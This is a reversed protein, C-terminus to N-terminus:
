NLIIRFVVAFNNPLQSSPAIVLAQNTQRWDINEKSGLLQIHRISTNLWGASKGLSKISVGNTPSGLVIAYLTRGDKSQTFRVDEATFPRGKGENFGQASLAAGASAPGEGFVKWPRTGFICEKNVEMWDGIGEVVKLEKEDITGDGRVPINLLLNGNKSVVNVLTQIVTKTSKYGNRNYLGRDYHWGGICTDTQWPFPQIENASGREIDWVMCQQQELTLIKGFLVGDDGHVKENTKYFDAAIKLGADSVPWLPLATDDFYILDPQYKKILDATRNYFKDCYAQDPISIGNGWNWRAHISGPDRYNPSPAHNQAYLDQPNLGDWWQGAGDAKTLKGDYDQAPEYWSWAHAAHVSVGFKLGNERAAKAWGGIMDKKPGIAVSNWPQYTSDWLDFNDHHNALAFFYQAGARKYLEVMKEPDWNEAHWSHIVDKFGFDRPSGYHNTHFQYQWGGTQYMGRAYWDGAEPQCQPGWHAWIGFKADRFWEPVQYQKLSEWTPVFKGSAMPEAAKTASIELLVCGHPPLEATFNTQASLMKHTWLDRVNPPVIFGQDRWSVDTALPKATRNFIGVALAGSALQRTWIEPSSGSATVRRAPQGLPDQNIAIVEDNNLLALTAPDLDTLNAGLMLPSPALAWLSMLTRQEDQTFRTQHEKSNTWCRISLHGFPIMDADPWHGPGGTGQWRAVLDFQHNLKKWEDWFDGSIRWLNANTSIHGAYRFDTEGPSTSFVIPRGCKNIAQRIMEIEGANYPVSLDDVKIYDLGWAAYLRFMADYWAQGAPNAVVGFMDPCWGCINNTNGADAATFESGEIPTKAKVAQRPIGRMMHFGFKLGMAHIEDALPKFGKGGIASPFRNTAPLMRGFEDVFLKAGSRERTLNKDDYTTVSDYWRFDIVVFNWGHALLHKKLYRANALTEAETVSDGFADYSNWGMPPTMAVQNGTVLKFQTTAHGASNKAIVSFTYEGAVKLSGSILGTKPDLTLGRPLDKAAYRIPQEGGAAVSFVLPAGLEIERWQVSYNAAGAAASTANTVTVVNVGNAQWRYFVPVGTTVDAFSQPAPPPAPEPNAAPPPGRRAASPTVGFDSVVATTTKSAHHSSTAIGLYMVANTFAGDGENAGDFQHLLLWNTGNDSVYDAFLTGKRTLRLWSNAGYAPVLAGNDSAEGGARTRYITQSTNGANVAAMLDHSGADLSNRVMLGSRAFGSGDVDAVSVVRLRYDFDNTVMLYSFVFHDAGNWIDTGGAVIVTRGGDVTASYPQGTNFDHTQLAIDDLRSPPATQAHLGLPLLVALLPALTSKM